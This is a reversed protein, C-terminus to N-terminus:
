TRGSGSVRAGPICLYTRYTLVRLIHEARCCTGPLSCCGSPCSSDPMFDPYLGSSGPRAGYSVRSQAPGQVLSRRLDGGAQTIGLGDEGRGNPVLTM